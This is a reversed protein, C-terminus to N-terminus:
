TECVRKVLENKIKPAVVEAGDDDFIGPHKVVDENGSIFGTGSCSHCTVSTAASRSYDAFAFQALTLMCAGLKDGAAKRVNKP